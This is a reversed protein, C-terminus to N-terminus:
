NKLYARQNHVCSQHHEVCRSLTHTDTHPGKEADTSLPPDPVWWCTFSLEDCSFPPPRASLTRPEWILTVPQSSRRSPRFPGRQPSTLRVGSRLLVGRPQLESWGPWCIFLAWGVLATTPQGWKRQVPASMRSIGLLVVSERRGIEVCHLCPHTNLDAAAQGTELFLRSPQFMQFSRQAEENMEGDDDGDDGGHHSAFDTRSAPVQQKPRLLIISMDGEFAAHHM